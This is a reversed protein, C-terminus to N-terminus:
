PISPVSGTLNQYVYGLYDSGTNETYGQAQMNALESEPFIANDDRAPNYKRMLKVTGAPQPLTKPYIYGEIGDLQYGLLKLRTVGLADATYVFDTHSPNTACAPSFGPDGCKWSLRYLSALMTTSKPNVPTTFIWVQASPVRGAIATLGPFNPYSIVANGITYYSPPSAGVGPQLSGVLAAAAAQPVVTYFYDMRGASYFAFLPTLRNPTLAIAASVSRSASPLGYGLQTSPMLAHSANQRIISKVTDASLRPNISRIMGGLATVHPAAMSTGTCSGYGDGLIGSEDYNMADGCMVWPSNNYDASVPMTSVISKAPGVVGSLGAATSGNATDYRWSQWKSPEAPDTNQIGGVALVAPLNAPFNPGVNNDNGAAAVLLVDRSQAYDLADCIPKMGPSLCTLGTKGWSMNIAQVGRDVLGKIAEPVGSTMPLMQGMVVGCSPCAGSIGTMNNQTAAMIGSVHTGHFQAKPSPFWAEFSLHTRLNQLDSHTVFGGDAAGLYAHGPTLDWAAPFAMAHLGWQYQAAVPKIAFYPDNSTMSFSLARSVSAYEIGPTNDILAAARQAMEISEFRLVVYRYLRDEPSDPTLEQRRSESLRQLAILPRAGIPTGFRALTQPEGRSVADILAEEPRREPAIMLAPGLAGYLAAENRGLMVIVESTDGNPDVLALVETSAHDTLIQPMAPTSPPQHHDFLGGRWPGEGDSHYPLQDDPAGCAALLFAAIYCTIQSPNFSFRSKM